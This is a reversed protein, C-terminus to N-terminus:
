WCSSSRRAAFGHDDIQVTEVTRRLRVLRLTELCPQTLAALLRLKRTRRQWVERGLGDGRGFGGHRAVAAPRKTEDATLEAAKVGGIQGFLVIRPRDQDVRRNIRVDSQAGVETRLAIQVAAGFVRQGLGMKRGPRRLKHGDDTGPTIQQQNFGAVFNEIVAPRHVPIATRALDHDLTAIM